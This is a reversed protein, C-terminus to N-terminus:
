IRPTRSPPFEPAATHQAIECAAQEAVEKSLAPEIMWQIHLVTDDASCLRRAPWAHIKDLHWRPNDFSRQTQNIIQDQDIAGLLGVDRGSCRLFVIEANMVSPSQESLQAPRTFGVSGVCAEVEVGLRQLVMGAQCLLVTNINQNEENNPTHSNGMLAWVQDFAGVSGLARDILESLAKPAIIM